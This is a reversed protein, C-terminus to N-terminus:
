SALVIKKRYYMKHLYFSIIPILLTIIISVSTIIWWISQSHINFILWMFSNWLITSKLTIWQAKFYAYNVILWSIILLIDYVSEFTIFFLSIYIVTFFILMKNSNKFRASSLNRMVAVINVITAIYFWLLYFHLALLLIGCWSIYKLKCDDKQTFGFSIVGLAWIWISQALPNLSYYNVLIDLLVMIM